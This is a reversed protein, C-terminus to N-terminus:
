QGEIDGMIDEIENLIEQTEASKGKLDSELESIRQKAQNLDQALQARLAEQQEHKESAHDLALQAKHAKEEVKETPVIKLPQEAPKSTQNTM